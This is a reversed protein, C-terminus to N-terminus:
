PLAIGWKAALYQEVEARDADSLKANCSILECVHGRWPAVGTLSLQLGNSSDAQAPPSGTVSNFTLASGGNRRLKVKDHFTTGDGYGVVVSLIVLSTTAGGNVTGYVGPKMYTLLQGFQFQEGTGCSTDVVLVAPTNTDLTRSVIFRTVVSTGNQANFGTNVLDRGNGSAFLSLATMGNAFGEVKIPASPANGTLHWGNGSKDEWRLVAGGNTPTGGGVGSDFLTSEDSADYWYNLNPLDLPTFPADDTTASAENSYASDGGANSAKVRYYYQTSASLGTDSYTTVNAGVSDILAWAGGAGTKREIRFWTENSSNETWSLNIQTSSVTTANLLMPAEPATPPDTLRIFRETCAVEVQANEDTLASFSERGLHGFLLPVVTDGAQWSGALVASLSISTGAAGSMDIVEWTRYDRWILAFKNFVDWLRYNLDDVTLITAGAAANATLKTRMPWLPVGIPMEKALEIVKRLYATENATLTLTRYRTRYLPRPFQSHREESTDLAEFITTRYAAAVTVGGDWSPPGTFIPVNVSKYQPFAM